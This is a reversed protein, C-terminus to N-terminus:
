LFLQRSLGKTKSKITNIQRKYASDIRYLVSIISFQTYGHFFPVHRRFFPNQSGRFQSLSITDGNEREYALVPDSIIPMSKFFYIFVIPAEHVDLNIELPFVFKIADPIKHHCGWLGFCHPKFLFVIFVLRGCREFVWGREWCNREKMSLEVKGQTPAFAASAFDCRSIMIARSIAEAHSSRRM